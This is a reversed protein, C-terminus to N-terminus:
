SMYYNINDTYWTLHKTIIDNMAHQIVKLYIFDFSICLAAWFIIFCNLKAPEHSIIKLWIINFKEEPQRLYLFCIVIRIVRYELICNSTDNNELVAKSKATIPNLLEIVNWTITKISISGKEAEKQTNM